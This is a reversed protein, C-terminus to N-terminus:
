SSTRRGAGSWWRGAWAYRSGRGRPWSSGTPADPGGGGLQSGPREGAAEAFDKLDYGSCFGEGAGALVIVHVSDDRNAADVAAAIEGPMALNIANMREPRNLTITAVRGAVAYALTRYTM